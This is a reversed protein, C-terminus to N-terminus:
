RRGDTKPSILKAQYARAILESRGEVRLKTFLNRLHYKITPLEISLQEGIQANTLGDAVLSLVERERDTLGEILDSTQPQAERDNHSQALAKDAEESLISRGQMASRIAYALEFATANKLLYGTAHAEMEARVTDSEESSTLAIVRVAPHREKIARTAAVGGMGPMLLDMLIVDPEQRDCFAVAEEGSDVMGVLTLDPTARMFNRLGAQTMPHDDVVLVRIKMTTIDSM